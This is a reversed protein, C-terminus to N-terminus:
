SSIGAARDLRRAETRVAARLLPAVFDRDIPDPTLRPAQTVVRAYREVGVDYGRRDPNWTTRTREAVEMLGWGDPLEGPKVISRHSVVLWWRDCYRRVPASKEPFRLEVLWDSRSVKVEHGHVALGQSPWLDMAVADATRILGGRGFGASCRVHTAFAWRDGNGHTVSYRQRLADLVDAETLRAAPAPPEPPPDTAPVVVFPAPDPMGPLTDTM